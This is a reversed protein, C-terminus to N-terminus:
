FEQIAQPLIQDGLIQEILKGAVTNLESDTGNRPTIVVTFGKKGYFLNIESQKLGLRFRFKKGYHISITEITEIEFEKMKKTVLEIVKEIEEPVYIQKEQKFKFNPNLQLKIKDLADKDIQQGENEKKENKTETEKAQQKEDLKLMSSIEKVQDMNDFDLYNVM